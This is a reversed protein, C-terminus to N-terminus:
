QLLSKWESRFCAIYTPCMAPNWSRLRTTQGIPVISHSQPPLLTVSIHKEALTVARQPASDQRQMLTQRTCVPWWRRSAASNRWWVSWWRVFPDHNWATLGIGQKWARAYCKRSIPARCGCMPTWYHNHRRGCKLVYRLKTPLHQVTRRTSKMCTM